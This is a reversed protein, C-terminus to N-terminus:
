LYSRIAVVFLTTVDHRGDLLAVLLVVSHPLLRTVCVYYVRVGDLFPEGM